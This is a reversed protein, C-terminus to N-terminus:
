KGYIERSIQLFEECMVEINERSHGASVPDGYWRPILGGEKVGLCEAMKRCYARIEDPTGSPMTKQIDVPSFFTLKGRFLSGLRELGMNQQQDMHIANLGIEILDGLIDVIYGCSHLFVDMGANHAEDYVRKYEPKWIERWAEPSIMLRDQLGWDDCWIFGDVGCGAIDHIIEINMDALIGVLRKLNDAEEITDCWMNELGRIFHVREFISVGNCLVYKDGAAARAQKIHNYARDKQLKPITLKDFDAWDKLPFEKVEGISTNPLCDWLCGWEDLGRAPRCDPCPNVGTNYFDTGYPEPFDHAYREPTQFHLTRRVNERSTM